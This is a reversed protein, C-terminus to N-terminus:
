ADDHDGARDELRTLWGVVEGSPVTKQTGDGLRRLTVVDDALEREGLIAAFVSGSRDAM